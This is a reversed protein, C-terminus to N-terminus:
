QVRGHTELGRLFQPFESAFEESFGIEETLLKMGQRYGSNTADTCIRAHRKAVGEHSTKLIVQGRIVLRFLGCNPCTDVTIM